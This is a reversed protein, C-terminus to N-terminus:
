SIYFKILMFLVLHLPYFAYFFYKEMTGPRKGPKELLLFAISGVSFIELLIWYLPQTSMMFKFFAWILNLGLFSMVMVSVANSDAPLLLDPKRVRKQVFYFLYVTLVGFVSYDPEFYIAAALIFVMALISVIGALLPPVRHGRITLSIQGSKKEAPPTNERRGTELSKSLLESSAMFLIALSFTFMVNTFAGIGTYFSTLALLAQTVCAFLFMRTFYRTRNKTRLFGAAVSYAFLPFSLRGILRLLIFVPNPMFAVFYYGIHDIIMLLVAIWKIM